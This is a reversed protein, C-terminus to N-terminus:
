HHPHHGVLPIMRGVVRMRGLVRFGLYYPPHPALVPFPQAGGGVGDVKLMVVPPVGGPPRVGPLTGLAPALALALEHALEVWGGAPMALHQLAPPFPPRTAPPRTPSHQVTHGSDGRAAAGGVKGWALLATGEGGVLLAACSAALDRSCGGLAASSLPLGAGCGDSPLLRVEQM